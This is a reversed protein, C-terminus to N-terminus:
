GGEEESEPQPADGRAIARAVATALRANGLGNLHCCTDRYVTEPEDEFLMTLDVFDVGQEALERGREILMPYATAVRGTDAVDPDYAVEREEATLAKSGPLYQSPQLLHVYRIGMGRCLVALELSSRAWVEVFELYMSEDDSFRVLPGSTEPTPPSEALARKLALTEARLRAVERQDLFDWLALLFASRLALGRGFWGRLAERRARIMQVRGMQEAARADPRRRAHVKWMYPYFPNIGDQLNDKAADIENFGDLNAVVDFQAGLALATALVLLQQPQKYAYMALNVVEIRKDGFAPEAHLADALIDRATKYLQDAVSGGLLGVVLKDPGRTAFPESGFFGYQNVGPWAPNAVFGFYPHLIVPQSVVDAEVPLAADTEAAGTGDAPEAESHALLRGVVEDRDFPRRRYASYV